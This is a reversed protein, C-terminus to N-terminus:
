VCRIARKQRIRFAPHPFRKRRPLRIFLYAVEPHLLQIVHNVSTYLLCSNGGAVDHVPRIKFDAPEHVIHSAIVHSTYLLCAYLDCM